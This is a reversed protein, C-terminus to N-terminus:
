PLGADSLAGKHSYRYMDPMLPGARGRMRLAMLYCRQISTHANDCQGRKTYLRDRRVIGDFGSLWSVCSSSFSSRMAACIIPASPSRATQGGVVGACTSYQFLQM